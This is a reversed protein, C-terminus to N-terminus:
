FRVQFLEFLEGQSSRGVKCGAEKFLAKWEEVKPLLVEAGLYTELIAWNETLDADPNVVDVLLVGGPKLVRKVEALVQQWYDFPYYGSWGTAVVGDFQQAEARIRDASGLEV